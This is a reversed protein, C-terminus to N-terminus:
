KFHARVLRAGEAVAAERNPAEYIRTVYDVFDSDGAEKYSIYDLYRKTHVRPIDSSGYGTVYSFWTLDNDPEASIMGPVSTLNIDSM